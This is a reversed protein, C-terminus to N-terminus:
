DDLQVLSLSDEYPYAFEFTGRRRILVPVKGELLASRDGGISKVHGIFVEDKIMFRVLDGSKFRSDDKDLTVKRPALFSISSDLRSILYRRIRYAEPSRSSYHVVNKLSQDVVVSAPKSPKFNM